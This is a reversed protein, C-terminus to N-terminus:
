QEAEMAKRVQGMLEDLEARIEAPPNGNLGVKILGKAQEFEHCQYALSAASRYLVSRTPEIDLYQLEQAAFREVELALYRLRKADRSEPDRMDALEALEMAIRHIDPIDSM